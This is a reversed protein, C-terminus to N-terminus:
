SAICPPARLSISSLWEFQQTFNLQPLIQIDVATGMSCLSVKSCLKFTKSTLSYLCASCYTSHLQSKNECNSQSYALRLETLNDDEHRHSTCESYPHHIDKDAFQCIHSLPVGFTVFLYLFALIIRIGRPATIWKKWINAM